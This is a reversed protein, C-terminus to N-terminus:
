LRKRVATPGKIPAPLGSDNWVISDAYFGQFRDWDQANVADYRAEILKLNEKEAENDKQTCASIVLFTAGFFLVSLNKM